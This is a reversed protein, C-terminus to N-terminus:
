GLLRDLKEAAERVAPLMVHSYTDVAISFQSHGPVEMVVRPHIGSALMLLAATHRLDHFRRRPLGAARLLQRFVRSVRTKDLPTGIDTTFVYGSQQWRSGALIRVEPQRKRHAQLVGVVFEPLPLTRRSRDSKPEVCQLGERRVRRLAREVRLTRGELDIDSWRLGLGEGKRLGLAMAVSYLAENRDGRVADLFRRAEESTLPEVPTRPVRPPSVSDCVNRPVLDWKVARALASRLVARIYQVSRPSLGAHLKRNLLEQVDQPSLRALPITGIEPAIHLRVLARCSELTRRRVRPALCASLWWELFHGVTQREPEVNRGESLAQLAKTLERQV